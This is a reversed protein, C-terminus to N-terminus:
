LCKQGQFAQSDSMIRDIFALIACIDEMKMLDFVGNSQSCSDHQWVQCSVYLLWDEDKLPDNPDNNFINHCVSCETMAKTKKM